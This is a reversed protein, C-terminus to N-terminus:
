SLGCHTLLQQSNNLVDTAFSLLWEMREEMNVNWGFYLSVQLYVNFCYTPYYFSHRPSASYRKLPWIHDKQTYCPPNEDLNYFKVRSSSFSLQLLSSGFFKWKLLNIDQWWLVKGAEYNYWSDSHIVKMRWGSFYICHEEGLQQITQLTNYYSCRSHINNM